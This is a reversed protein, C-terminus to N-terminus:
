STETVENENLQQSQAMVKLVWKKFGALSELHIMLKLEMLCWM